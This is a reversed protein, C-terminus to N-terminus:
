SLLDGAEQRLRKLIRFKAQVVASESMGREQAVRARLRLQREAEPSLPNELPARGSVVLRLLDDADICASRDFREALLRAITSKGAGQTGNVLFIARERRTSM